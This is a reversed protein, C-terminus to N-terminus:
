DNVNVESQELPNYLQNENATIRRDFDDLMGSLDNVVNRDQWVDSTSDTVYYLILRGYTDLDYMAGTDFIVDEWASGEPIYAVFHGDLTLGFFVQKVYMSIIDAMHANIWAELQQEYYDLFGSDKFKNFEEILEEIADHDDSVKDGLMDAYCILKNILECMAHIRQEQSKVNFYLKPISATFETFGAFPPVYRYPPIPPCCAM